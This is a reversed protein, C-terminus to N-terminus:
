FFLLAWSVMCLVSVCVHIIIIIIKFYSFAWSVVCLVSVCTLYNNYNFFNFKGRVDGKLRLAQARNNYASAWDPAVSIAESFLDLAAQMDGSEAAKVAHLEIAKAHKHAETEAVDSIM